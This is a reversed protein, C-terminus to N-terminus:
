EVIRHRLLRRFAEPTRVEERDCAVIVDGVRLGARAFAKDECVGSVRVFKSAVVEVGVAKTEFFRVLGLPHTDPQRITVLTHKYRPGLHVKDASILCSREAGECRIPGRAIVVSDWVADARFEGDCVVVSGFAHDVRVDGNAFVSSRYLLLSERFLSVGG